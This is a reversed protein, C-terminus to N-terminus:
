YIRIVCILVLLFIYFNEYDITTLALSPLQHNLLHYSQLSGGQVVLDVVVVECLEFPSTHRPTTKEGVHGHSLAIDDGSTSCLPSVGIM